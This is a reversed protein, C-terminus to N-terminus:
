PESAYTQDELQYEDRKNGESTSQLHKIALGAFLDRVNARVEQPLHEWAVRAAVDGDDVRFLKLQIDM